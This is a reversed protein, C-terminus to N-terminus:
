VLIYAQYASYVLDVSSVRNYLEYLGALEKVGGAHVLEDFGIELLVGDQKKILETLVTSLLARKTSPDLFGSPLSCMRSELLIRSQVHELYAALGPGTKSGRLPSLLATATM